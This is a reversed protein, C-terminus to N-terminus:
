RGLALRQAEMLRAYCQDLLAKDTDTLGYGAPASAMAAAMFAVIFVDAAVAELVDGAPFPRSLGRVHDQKPREPFLEHLEVGVAGCVEDIGCGAWCKILIRGDDGQAITLSPSKDAHGPCKAMWGRSTKKVGDLRSLFEDVNM